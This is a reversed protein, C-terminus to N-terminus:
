LGAIQRLNKLTDEFFGKKDLYKIARKGSIHSRHGYIIASNPALWWGRSKKKRKM